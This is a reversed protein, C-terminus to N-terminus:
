SLVESKEFSKQRAREIPLRTLAQRIQRDLGGHQEPDIDMAARYFERAFEAFSGTLTGSVQYLSFRVFFAFALDVM